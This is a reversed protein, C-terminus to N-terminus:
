RADADLLDLYGATADWLADAVPELKGPRWRRDEYEQSRVRLCRLSVALEDALRTRSEAATPAPLRPPEGDRIATIAETLVGDDLSWVLVPREIRHNWVPARASRWRVNIPNKTLRTANAWQEAGPPRCYWPVDDPPLDVALAVSVVDVDQRRDLVEGFVWLQVVRLPVISPPTTAMDACQDALTEVHHIARSWKM